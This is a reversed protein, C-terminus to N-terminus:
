LKIQTEWSFLIDHGVPLVTPSVCTDVILKQKLITFYKKITKEFFLMIKLHTNGWFSAIKTIKLKKWFIDM